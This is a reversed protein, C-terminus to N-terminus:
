CYENTLRGVLILENCIIGGKKNQYELMPSFYFAFLFKAFQGEM